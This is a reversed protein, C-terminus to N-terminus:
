PRSARHRPPVQDDDVIVVAASAREITANVADFLLVSFVEAPEVFPDGLVHLEISRTLEGPAFEVVGSAKEFDEGEKASGAVTSFSVRVTVPVPASLTVVVTATTVGHNGEPIRTGTCSITPLTVTQVVTANSADFDSDGSFTVLLSHDGSPLPALTFSVAGHALPSTGLVVGAESITVTGSPILDSRAPVSVSANIVPSAGIVVSHASADIRTAAKAVSQLFASATSTNFNADGSYTATISRTGAHLSATEFAATGNVVPVTGIVNGDSLFTANGGPQGAAPAVASVTAMFRVVQGYVSNQHDAALDTKTAGKATVYAITTSVSGLFNATGAFTSAISHTGVSLNSIALAAVGNVAPVTGIANNDALFTVNGDPQGAAPAVASVTATFHVAQGFVSSQPDAALATNTQGPSVVHSLVGSVSDAFVGTGLFTAIVNHTGVSAPAITLSAVGNVVAVTGLPVGDAAFSVNGTPVGAACSVTNTLTWPEGVKTDAANQTLVSSTDALVSLVVDNGDGGQYSLRILQGGLPITTREPIGTFTGIVPDTGDNDIITIAQGVAPAGSLIDVTLSGSVAVTGTVQVQDSTGGPALDFRAGANLVLSKTHLVGAALDFGFTKWPSENGPSFPSSATANGVTGVGSLRGNVTANPVSGSVNMPGTITGSFTGTGKIYAGEGIITITGSGNLAGKLSATENLTSSEDVTLTQGNVDIAGNYNNPASGFRVATAIKMDANFTVTVAPAGNAQLFSLDGNLTLANGSLTYNDNFALAGVSAGPPLDNTMSLRAGAPFILVEGAAPVIQPTWNRADSWLGSVSGNWSKQASVATLVVDNGDGGHYSIVFASTAVAIAAGEPLGAFTGSVPDVGDNDIITFTQGTAPAGSLIDVILSGGITVTGAVRVQDSTGGPVLDFRAGANLVLSKTHLVGAAVDFGFTKWPSENGPSFPATMTANGVTGVGSIRGNVTANPISGSVDMSGTITGSFTGTGRIWAGQGTITITGSGNLPGNLSATDNVTSSEDVTLTQGNVDIAGNYSNPASGFTVATALKLDSNITVYVAPSGNVKLFSLDGNLTLPNGSLTYNGNFTMAGVTTGAPLDNTLIAFVGAPFLLEEGASPVAQPNWNQPNSWVTSAFSTWSKQTSLATLVVDNGDGGHYSIAFSATGAALTAGEPLGTFTGTVADAGDNDIIVFTQGTAPAGSLIDITLSGGITVTGAAQVQDSGGGPLLDFRAGANLVLSKTHLVGAQNDFGFTKWPSENGPSFPATVTANGVTGAGSVRGNVTANPLSGSVTMPGNITGNFTGTGRIYAGQGTITVTGSGNLPGNLSATENATHSEDVTLTQGNVDIAGNYNNKASGFTVATALKFDTNFTIEVIAVGNADRLFSLDGNLTLANGSLTYNDNFTMAGVTTGAPLDNTMALHPAGAPFILSDVAAPIGAPSWNLPDSWSASAAGSWSRTIAFLPSTIFCCLALPLLARRYAM